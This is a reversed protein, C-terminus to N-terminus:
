KYENHIKELIKERLNEIENCNYIMQGINGIPLIDFLNYKKVMEWNIGQPQKYADNLYMVRINKLSWLKIVEPSIGTFYYCPRPIWFSICWVKGYNDWNMENILQKEITKILEEGTYGLVRSWKFKSRKNKILYQAAQKINRDAHCHKFKKTSLCSKCVNKIGDKSNSDKHFESEDKEKLCKRCIKM